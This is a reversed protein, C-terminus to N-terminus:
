SPSHNYGCLFSTLGITNLYPFLQDHKATTEVLGASTSLDTYNLLNQLVSFQPAFKPFIRQMGAQRKAIPASRLLSPCCLTIPKARVHHNKKYLVLNKQTSRTEAVFGCKMQWSCHVSIIVM